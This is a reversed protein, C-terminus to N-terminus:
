DIGNNINKRWGIQSLTNELEKIKGNMFDTFLYNKNSVNSVGVIIKDFLKLPNLYNIIQVISEGISIIAGVISIRIQPAPQQALADETIPKPSIGNLQM